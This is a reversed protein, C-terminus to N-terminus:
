YYIPILHISVNLLFRLEHYIEPIYKLLYRTDIPTSNWAYDTFICTVVVIELTDRDQVTINLVKNLFRNFLEVSIIKHTRKSLIDYEINLAQCIEVFATKFPTGDNIIILHCMDFKLLMYQMFYKVSSISTADPVPVIIVFQIMDRMDNM